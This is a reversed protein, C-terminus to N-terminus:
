RARFLTPTFDVAGIQALGEHIRIITEETVEGLIVEWVIMQMEEGLLEGLRQGVWREAVTRYVDFHEALGEDVELHFLLQQSSNNAHELDLEVRMVGEGVGVPPTDASFLRVPVEVSTTTATPRVAVVGGPAAPVDAAEIGTLMAFEPLGAAANLIKAACRALTDPAGPRGLHGIYGLAVRRGVAPSTLFLSIREGRGALEFAEEALPDESSLTAVKADNVDLQMVVSRDVMEGDVESRHEVVVVGVPAPVEASRRALRSLPAHPVTIPKERLDKAARKTLHLLSFCVVEPYVRMACTEKPASFPMPKGIYETAPFFRNTGDPQAVRVWFAEKTRRGGGAAARRPRPRPRKTSTPRVVAPGFDDAGAPGSSGVPNLLAAASLGNDDAVVGDGVVEDAVPADSVVEDAVPADSVVEDAMVEGAVVEGALVQEDNGAHNEIDTM